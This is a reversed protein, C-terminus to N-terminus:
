CPLNFHKFVMQAHESLVSKIKYGKLFMLRTVCNFNVKREADGFYLIHGCYLVTYARIYHVFEYQLTSKIEHLILKLFTM